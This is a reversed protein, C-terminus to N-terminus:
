GIKASKVRNCAECLLQINRYTNSGGKSFPIIHDFELKQNSECLVCRGGDRNWVSDKVSQPIPERKLELQPAEIEGNILMDNFVQQRLDQIRKQERKETEKRLLEQRINAKMEEMKANEEALKAESVKMEIIQLQNPLVHETFFHRKNSSISAKGRFLDELEQSNSVFVERAKSGEFRGVVGLMELQDIIKGARNYGLRMKRQLLSTSGQQHLMILTAAEKLLPDLITLDVQEIGNLRYRVEDNIFEEIENPTLTITPLPKENSMTFKPSVPMNSDATPRVDAIQKSSFLKFLSKIM